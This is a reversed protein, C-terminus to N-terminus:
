KLLTIKETQTTIGNLKLSVMYIGSAFEGADWIINGDTASGLVPSLNEILQGKLNYISLEANQANFDAQNFSIVIQPNFPNPYCSFLQESQPIIDPDTDTNEINEQVIDMMNDSVRLTITDWTNNILLPHTEMALFVVPQSYDYSQPYLELIISDNIVAQSILSFNSNEDFYTLSILSDQIIQFDTVQPLINEQSAVSYQQPYVTCAESWDVEELGNSLTILSTGASTEFKPDDPDYWAIFDEDNLLDSWNCELILLNNEEDITYEIDGVLVMDEQSEGLIKYLGPVMYPPQDVTYLMGFPVDGEQDSAIVLLYAYFPGWAAESVPFGGGNNQMALYLKDDDYTAYVNIIDLFDLGQNVDGSADEMLFSLQEFGPTNGSLNYVPAAMFPVQDPAPNLLLTRFGFYREVEPALMFGQSTHELGPYNFMNGIIVGDDTNYLIQTTNEANIQCRLAINQDGMQATFRIDQWPMVGCLALVSFVALIILIKKM